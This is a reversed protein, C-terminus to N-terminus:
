KEGFYMLLLDVLMYIEYLDITPALSIIMHRSCQHINSSYVYIGSSLVLCKKTEALESSEKWPQFRKKKRDTDLGKFIDEKTCSLILHHALDNSM